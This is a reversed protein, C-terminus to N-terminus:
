NRRPSPHPPVPLHTIQLIIRGEEGDQTNLYYRNDEFLRRVHGGHLSILEINSILDGVAAASPDFGELRWIMTPDELPDEGSPVGTHYFGLYGNRSVDLRRELNPWANANDGIYATRIEYDYADGTQYVGFWFHNIELKEGVLREALSRLRHRGAFLWGDKTDWTTTDNLKTWLPKLWDTDKDLDKPQLHHDSSQWYCRAVFCLDSQFEYYSM